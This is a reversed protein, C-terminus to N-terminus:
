ILRINKEILIKANLPTLPTRREFEKTESRLWLIEQNDYYKNDM